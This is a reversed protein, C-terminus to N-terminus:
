RLEFFSVPIKAKGAYMIGTARQHEYQWRLHTRTPLDVGASDVSGYRDWGYIDVTTVEGTSAALNLVYWLATLFSSGEWGSKGTNAASGFTEIARRKVTDLDVTSGIHIPVGWEPDRVGAADAEDQLWREPTWRGEGDECWRHLRNEVVSTVHPRRYGHNGHRLWWTADLAVHVHSLRSAQVWPVCIASGVTVVTDYSYRSYKRETEQSALSPGATLLATRRPM